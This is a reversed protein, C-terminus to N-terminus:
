EEEAFLLKYRAEENPLVIFALVEKTTPNFPGGLLLRLSLSIPIGFAVGV